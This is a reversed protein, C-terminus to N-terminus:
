EAAFQMFISPESYSKQILACLEKIEAESPRGDLTEKVFHALLRIPFRDDVEVQKTLGDSFPKVFSVKLESGM